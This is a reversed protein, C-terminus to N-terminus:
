RQLRVNEKTRLFKTLEDTTYVKNAVTWKTEETDLHNNVQERISDMILLAKVPLSIACDNTDRDTM